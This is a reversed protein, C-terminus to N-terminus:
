PCTMTSSHWWRDAVAEFGDRPLRLSSEDDSQRRGDRALVTMMWDDDHLASWHSVADVRSRLCSGTWELVEDQHLRSCEVRNPRWIGVLPQLELSEILIEHVVRRAIATNRVVHNLGDLIAPGQQHQRFALLM